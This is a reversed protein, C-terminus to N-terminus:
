YGGYADEKQQFHQNAKFESYLTFFVHLSEIINKNNTTNHVPIDVLNCALKCYDKLELDIEETPLKLNSLVEEIEAPWVQMLNEIDPLPKSYVVSPPQKKKHVDSVDQIWSTIEKPNKEANEISHVVVNTDGRKKKMVERFQLDLTSKKSQNLCPEDITVLGLNEPANDPRPPKLFADVEGVSPIFEPVFVKLKSDLEIPLPKYRTIYTFLEQIESTVQLSRYDNPDYQGPIHEENEDDDADHAPRNHSIQAPRQGAHSNKQQHHVEPEMQDPSEDEGSAIESGEESLEVAEDFHQNEIKKPKEITLQGETM